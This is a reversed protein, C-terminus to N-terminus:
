QTSKFNYPKTYKAKIWNDVKYTLSTYEVLFLNILIQIITPAM